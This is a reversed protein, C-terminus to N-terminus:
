KPFIGFMASGSGSMAAYIAGDRYLQEKISQLAPFTAFVTKEFDNEVLGKWQELPRLMLERLDAENEPRPTGFSRRPTIGRYAQPTSVHIEPTILRIQHHEQALVQDLVASCFPELLDGRGTGYMPRNHIFFPCDSGLRSAYAVLQQQSLGLQFLRNLGSLTFAGDASGGGLGAGIPINKYLHIAVPPLHFDQELLRWARVCIENEQDNDPLSYPRGYATFSFNSSECIELIDQLGTFPVFVTELNHFGDPRKETVRLGINLKANPYLIINM